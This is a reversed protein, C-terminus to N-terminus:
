DASQGGMRDAVQRVMGLLDAFTVAALLDRLMEADAKSLGRWDVEQAVPLDGIQAQLLHAGAEMINFDM